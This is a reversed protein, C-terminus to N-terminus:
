AASPASASSLDPHRRVCGVRRVEEASNIPSKERLAASGAKGPRRHQRRHPPQRLSVFHAFGPPTVWTRALARRLLPLHQWRARVPAM